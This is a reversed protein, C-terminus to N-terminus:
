LFSEKRRYYIFNVSKIPKISFSWADEQLELFRDEAAEKAAEFNGFKEVQHKKVWCKTEMALDYDTYVGMGNKGSVAYFKNKKM